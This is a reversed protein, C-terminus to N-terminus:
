DPLCKSLLSSALLGSTLRGSSTGGGITPAAEVALVRWGARGLTAAATLGNPGAGVVVVDWDDAM